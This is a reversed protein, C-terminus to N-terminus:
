SRSGNYDRRRKHKLDHNNRRQERVRELKEPQGPELLHDWREGNIIQQVTTKEVGFGLALEAYSYESTLYLQRMEKVAEPSLIARPNHEGEANM